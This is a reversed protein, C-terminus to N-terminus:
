SAPLPARCTPPARVAHAPKALRGEMEVWGGFVELLLGELRKSMKAGASREEATMALLHEGQAARRGCGAAADPECARAPGPLACSPLLRFPPPPVLHDARHVLLWEALAAVNLM